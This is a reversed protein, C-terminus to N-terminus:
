LRRRLSGVGLGSDQTKVRSNQSAKIGWLACSSSTRSGHTNTMARSRVTRARTTSQGGPLNEGDLSALDHLSVETDVGELATLKGVGAVLRSDCPYICELGLWISM